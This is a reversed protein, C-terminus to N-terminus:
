RLFTYKKGQRKYIKRIYQPVRFEESHGISFRFIRTSNKMDRIIISDHSEDLLAYAVKTDKPETDEDSFPDWAKSEMYFVLAIPYKPSCFCPEYDEKEYNTFLTFFEETDWASTDTIIEKIRSRVHAVVLTDNKVIAGLHDNDPWGDLFILDVRSILNTHVLLDFDYLDFGSQENTHTSVDFDDDLGFDDEFAGCSLTGVISLLIPAICKM